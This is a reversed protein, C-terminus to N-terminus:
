DNEKKFNYYLLIIIIVIILSFIIYLLNNYKFFSNDTEHSLVKSIKIFNALEVPDIKESFNIYQIYDNKSFDSM